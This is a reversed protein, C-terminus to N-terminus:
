SLKKRNENLSLHFMLIQRMINHIIYFKSNYKKEDNSVTAFTLELCIKCIVNELIRKM